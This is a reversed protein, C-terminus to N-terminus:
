GDLDAAVSSDSPCEPVTLTALQPIAVAAMRIFGASVDVGIAEYGVAAAAAVTSGAGCFPDLVVGRGLPLSARVIYRMLRQPKLTPHPAIRKEARSAPPCSFVDRFPQDASPRRLGGTGWRRLNDRVTGEPPKRFIGWPEWCSRPMVSIEPYETHAGKPRDGGRLTQVLRVLEGRKEFGAAVLATYLIHSLVPNTAIFLHGGPVLLRFALRGFRGFFDALRDRDERRLVTFRPVPSRRHGGLSPPQRWIGGMGSRRKDLQRPTYEVLGYPPDTVIAHVFNPPRGDMWELCDALYLPYRRGSITVVAEPEM